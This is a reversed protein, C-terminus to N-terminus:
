FYTDQRLNLMKAALEMRAAFDPNSSHIKRGSDASSLNVMQKSSFISFTLESLDFPPPLAYKSSLSFASSPSVKRLDLHRTCASTAVTMSNLLAIRLGSCMVVYVACCVCVCVVVPLIFKSVEATLRYGRYDILVILPFHFGKIRCDMFAIQGQVVDSSNLNCMSENCQNRCNVDYFPGVRAMRYRSSTAQPRSTTLLHTSVFSCLMLPISCVSYTECLACTPAQAHACLCVLTRMYRKVKMIGEDGGYLGYKDVAIKFFIGQSIFKEGGAVGGIAPTM